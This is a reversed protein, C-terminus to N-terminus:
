CSLYTWILCQLAVCVSPIWTGCLLNRYVLFLIDPIANRSYLRPLKLSPRLSFRGLLESRLGAMTVLCSCLPLFFSLSILNSASASVYLWLLKTFQYSDQRFYWVCKRCIILDNLIVGEMDFNLDVNYINAQVASAGVSLLTPLLADGYCPLLTIIFNWSLIQAFQGTM